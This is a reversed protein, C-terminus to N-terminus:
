KKNIKQQFKLQETLEDLLLRNERILEPDTIYKPNICEIRSNESRIPLLIIEGDFSKLVFKEKIDDMYEPIDTADLNAIGVYFVLIKKEDNKEM